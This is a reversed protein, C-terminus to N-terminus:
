CYKSKSGDGRKKRNLPEVSRSCSPKNDLNFVTDGFLVQECLNTGSDSMVPLDYISKSTRDRSSGRWYKDLQSIQYLLGRRCCEQSGENKEPRRIQQQPRCWAYWSWRTLAWFWPIYNKSTVYNLVFAGQPIARSLEVVFSAFWFVFNAWMQIEYRINILWQYVDIICRVWRRTCM